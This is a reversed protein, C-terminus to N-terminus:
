NITLKYRKTNHDKDESQLFYLGPTLDGVPISLRTQHNVNVTKVVSGNMEVLQLLLVNDEMNEVYVTERAPVPYIKVQSASTGNLALPYDIKLNGSVFSLEYNNDYGGSLDISYNGAPSDKEALTSAVPRQDIVEIGENNVFGTALITLFPNDEGRRKYQDEAKITLAAKEISLNGKQYEFEYNNDQGGSLEIDYTGVSSFKTADTNALPLQDIVDKGENNVFGTALITLSPNEQGYVKTKNEAKIALPAKDINLIGKFLEMQYNNDMGGTLNIDYTGVSSLKTATTSASPLQDIIDMTENNVFGTATLSLKPNEEGYKRTKYDAKITLPVKEITLAGKLYEFEYNNDEGASAILDYIGVPSSSSALTNIVPAKDIVSSTENNVFGTFSVAFSPDKEGYKRVANVPKVTLKIKNITLTGNEYNLQYNNDSGGSVVIPYSGAASNVDASCSVTPLQDIFDAAEGNVFGSYEIKFAPNVSGYDKVKNVTRVTLPAKNVVLDTDITGKYLDDSISVQTKYTGANKPRTLLGNFKISTNLGSPITKDVMDDVQFGDYTQIMNKLAISAKVKNSHRDLGWVSLLFLDKNGDNDMDTLRIDCTGVEGGSYLKEADITGDPRIPYYKLANGSCPLAIDENGDNDLDLIYINYLDLHNQQIVEQTFGGNKDNRYLILKFQDFLYGVIDEYGDKNVDGVAFSSFQGNIIRKDEFTGDGKGPYILIQKSDWNNVCLDTNGDHNFDMATIKSVSNPVFPTIKTYNGDKVDLYLNSNLFLDPNGNNNVDVVLINAYGVNNIITSQFNNEGDNILVESANSCSAIIDPFGDMNLDSVKIETADVQIPITKVYQYSQDSKGYHLELCNAANYNFILDKINDGNMDVIDMKYFVESGCVMGGQSWNLTLDANLARVVVNVASLNLCLFTLKNAYYVPKMFFGLPVSMNGDVNIKTQVNSFLNGSNGLLFEIQDSKDRIAMDMLGDENFDQVIFDLASVIGSTSGTTPESFTHNERQYFVQVQLLNNFVVAVDPLQDGDFDAIELNSPSTNTAITLGKTFTGDGNGTYLQLKNNDSDSVLIDVSGDNNVDKLEMDSPTGSLSYSVPEGLKSSSNGLYVQMQKSEECIVALDMLQDKNFDASLIKTPKSGSNFYYIDNFQSQKNNIAIGIRSNDYESFLIDDYTDNNIDCIHLSRKSSSKELPIRKMDDYRINLYVPDPSVNLRYAIYNQDFYFFVLDPRGDKNIEAPAFGGLDDTFDFKQKREYNFQALSNLATFLVIFLASLNRKM